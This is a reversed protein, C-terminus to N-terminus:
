RRLSNVNNNIVQLAQEIKEIRSELSEIAEVLARLGNYLNYKEPHTRADSFLQINEAFFKKATQTGM